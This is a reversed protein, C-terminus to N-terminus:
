KKTIIKILADIQQQQRDIQQQQEKISEIMVPILGSYNISLIGEKNTKVLEPFLQQVEQALLGTQLGNDLAEDKWYYHYGNLRILQALSGHLPTIDKKLRIDSNQTLVGRFEANGNGYVNLNYQFGTPNGGSILSHQQYGIGVTGNPIDTYVQLYAGQVAIGVEGTGGPYLCIKRELTAPFSLPCSPNNNNGLGIKGNRLITMANRRNFYSGNGVQFIRDLDNVASIVPSDLTDNCWGFSTGGYAKAMSYVGGTFSMWGRSTTEYGIAFALDGSALTNYGMATSGAATAKSLYGFSTTAFQSASTQYGGSFGAYGTATTEPGIATSYDGTAIARYGIATAYEGSALSFNGLAVSQSGSAVNDAGISVSNQALALCKNGMAVAGYGNAQTKYGTATSYPGISDKNWQWLDVFGARFAAKDPYWMMRRGSGEVPPNGPTVPIDNEASFVVNSDTVHLRAKPTITGIGVNQSFCTLGVALAPLLLVKKM